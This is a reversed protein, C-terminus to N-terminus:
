LGIMREMGLTKHGYGSVEFNGRSVHSPVEHSHLNSGTNNHCLRVETGDTIPIIKGNLTGNKDLQSGSSRPFEFKWVNNSDAFGYGTVQRQGSGEPYLQVHSHLLNPSLVM